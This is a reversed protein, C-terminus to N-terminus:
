NVTYTVMLPKHDSPRRGASDRTDYVRASRVRLRSASESKFIFDIKYNHTAGWRSNGVFDTAADIADAAMWGDDYTDEMYPVNVLGANFDGAVIRQEAFGRLWSILQRIQTSRYGASESAMHTSVVNINRGNVNITVLAASRDYSMSLQSRAQIPFRSLILNGGGNANWNGWRQAFHYYWTRGTRSRLMDAFRRPQDENGHGSVNKEVENLSVVDPNIRAIWDAIRAINYRGDTGIGYHINWHLVKLTSGSSTSPAPAATPTGYVVRFVPRVSPDSAESSHFEKYSAASSSGGDVIAVRTYRSSGHRGSVVERVLTTLDFNVRSGVSTNVSATDYRAALDGGASAWRAGDSTRRHWTVAGEDFSTSVRYAGLTRTATESRKLTLTLTASTITANAPVKNHTDFKLFARRVLSQNSNAKTMLGTTNYVTNAYDGGRVYADVVESNPADLVVTTQALAPASVIVSLLFAAAGFVRGGTCVRRKM